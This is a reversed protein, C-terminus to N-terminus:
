CWRASRPRTPSRSTSPSTPTPANAGDSRCGGRVPDRDASWALVRDRDPASGPRGAAGDAGVEVEITLLAVIPCWSPRPSRHQSTASRTRRSSPPSTTTTADPGLAAPLDVCGTAVHMSEVTDLRDYIPGLLPAYPPAGDVVDSIRQLGLENGGAIAHLEPILHVLEFPAKPDDTRFTEDDTRDAEFGNDQLSKTVVSWDLDRRLGLVFGHSTDCLMSRQCGDETLVYDVEWAVDEGTWGYDLSMVSSADYLRTGTFM